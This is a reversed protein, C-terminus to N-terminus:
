CRRLDCVEVEKRWWLFTELSLAELRWLLLALVELLFAFHWSCRLIRPWAVDACQTLVTDHVRFCSRSVRPDHLPFRGPM